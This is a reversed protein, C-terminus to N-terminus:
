TEINVIDYSKSKLEDIYELRSNISFEILSKEGRAGNNIKIKYPDSLRLIHKIYYEIFIMETKGEVCILIYKYNMLLPFAVMYAM